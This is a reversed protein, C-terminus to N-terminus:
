YIMHCFLRLYQLCFSHLLQDIPFSKPRIVDKGTEFQIGQLAKKFVETTEKKVEPCGKNEILGKVDPCKDQYDALGDGDSDIPCGM